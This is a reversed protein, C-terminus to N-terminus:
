SGPGEEVSWQEGQNERLQQIVQESRVAPDPSGNRGVVSMSKIDFVEVAYSADAPSAGMNFTGNLGYTAGPRANFRVKVKRSYDSDQMSYMTAFAPDSLEMNEQSTPWVKLTLTTDGALISANEEAVFPYGNVATLEFGITAQPPNIELVATQDAPREAGPYAQPAKCGSTAIATVLLSVLSVTPLVGPVPKSPQHRM